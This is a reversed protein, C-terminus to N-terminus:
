VRKRFGFTLLGGQFGDAALQIWNVDECGIQKQNFRPSQFPCPM